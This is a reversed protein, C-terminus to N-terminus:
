MPRKVRLEYFLLACAAWLFRLWTDNSCTYTKQTIINSVEQISISDQCANVLWAFGRLLDNDLTLSSDFPMCIQNRVTLLDPVNIVTSCCRAILSPISSWATLTKMTENGAIAIVQFYILRVMLQGSQYFHYLSTWCCAVLVQELGCSVCWM